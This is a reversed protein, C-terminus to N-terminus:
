ETARASLAEKEIDKLEAPIIIVNVGGYDLSEAEKISTLVVKADDQLMNHLIIIRTAPNIVGKKYHAESKEIISVAERISITSKSKSDYDLLLMTHEGNNLNTAIKEYFSVPSYHESWRPITCTSGFRYFDLGSEGIATTMISNAHVAVTKVNHKKAEIYLIKHTTAILPDGGVLIAIDKVSAMSVLEAASDEMDERSLETIRKGTASTIYDKTSEGVASTFTDIYLECNRCVDIAGATIDKESLGLGVLFLM